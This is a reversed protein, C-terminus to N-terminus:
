DNLRNLIRSRFGLSPSGQRGARALAPLLTSGGHLAGQIVVAGLQAGAHLKIVRVGHSHPAHVAVV